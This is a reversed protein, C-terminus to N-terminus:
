NYWISILSVKRARHDILQYDCKKKTRIKNRKLAKITDKQRKPKVPNHVTEKKSNRCRM